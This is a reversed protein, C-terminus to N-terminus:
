VEPFLVIPQRAPEVDFLFKPPSEHGSNNDIHTPGFAPYDQV